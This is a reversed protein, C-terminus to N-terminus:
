RPAASPTSTLDELEALADACYLALRQVSPMATGCATFAINLNGDYSLATINLVQGSQLVSVPYISLVAAGNYYLTDKPGPVNSILVNFMPRGVAGAGILQTAIFPGMMLTTYLDLVSRPIGNLHHKAQETSRKIAEIRAGVDDVDTALNAFVFSLANGKTDAEDGTRVSVPMSAVLAQEPLQGLEKLYRRLGGACLALLVDNLTGGTGVALARLRALEFSQTAVRRQPTIPGNLVSDPASYPRTRDAGGISSLAAGVDRALRGASRKARARPVRTGRMPRSTSWLPPMGRRGPDTTFAAELTKIARVGDMLSHHVKVYIAFRDDSLGEIVNLEWPPQTLDLPTRHLRSVLVGLEREGGPWPLASHRLHFDLEITDVTEWRPWLRGSGTRSLKRNFPATPTSHGRMSEVWTHVFDAPAQAPAQLIILGGVHMPHRRSEMAVWPVDLPALARTKSM